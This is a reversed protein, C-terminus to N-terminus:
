AHGLFYEMCADCRSSRAGDFHERRLQQMAPGNWIADFPSTHLNGLPIHDRLCPTVTGDVHVFTTIATSICFGPRYLDVLDAVSQLVDFASAKPPAIDPCAHLEEICTELHVGREIAAELLREFARATRAEGLNGVPDLEAFRRTQPFLRAVVMREVGLDALRHLYGALHEVNQALAVASVLFPIGRERLLRAAAAINDMVLAPDVSPMLERYVKADDTPCSIQLRGLVDILGDLYRPTMRAGNTILDLYSGHRRLIAALEHLPGLTPESGVVPLVEFVGWGIEDFLREVTGMAMRTPDGRPVDCFVCRENCRAHLDISIRTPVGSWVSRGEYLDDALARVNRAKDANLISSQALTAAVVADARDRSEM